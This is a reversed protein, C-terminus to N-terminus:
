SSPPSPQQSDSCKDYEKLIAEQLYIRFGSDIPHVVDAYIKDYKDPDFNNKIGCSHCYNDLIACKGKCEPCKIMIKRSPMAIFREQTGNIIKIDRIVLVDDMVVTVFGLLRTNDQEARNITIETIKM